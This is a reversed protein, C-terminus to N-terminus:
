NSVNSSTATEDSTIIAPENDTETAGEDASVEDSTSEEEAIVVEEPVTIQASGLLTEYSARRERFLQLATDITEEQYVTQQVEETIVSDVDRNAIEEFTLFSWVAGAVFLLVGFLFGIMWDRSPHILQHDRLGRQRRLVRKAM